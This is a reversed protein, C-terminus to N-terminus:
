LSKEVGGGAALDIGGAALDIGGTWSKWSLSLSSLNVALV